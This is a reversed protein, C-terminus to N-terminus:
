GLLFGTQTRTDYPLRPSSEKGQKETKFEHGPKSAFYTVSGRYPPEDEWRWFHATITILESTPDHEFFTSWLVYLLYHAYHGVFAALSQEGYRDVRVSVNLDHLLSLRAVSGIGSADWVLSGKRLRPPVLPLTIDLKRLYPFGSGLPDLNLIRLDDTGWQEVAGIGRISLQRMTVGHKQAIVRWLNDALDIALSRIAIEKLKRLSLIFEIASTTPGAYTQPMIPGNSQSKHQYGFELSELNPVKGTLHRFFENPCSAGFSLRRLKTFDVAVLLLGCHIPDFDYKPVQIDLSEIAPLRDGSSLPLNLPGVDVSDLLSLQPDNHAELVLVRISTSKSLVNKLRRFFSRTPPSSLSKCAISYKLSYLQPSSFLVPDFTKTSVCLRTAPRLTHFADLLRSPMPHDVNWSFSYLGQFKGMLRVLIDSNLCASADDGEFSAVTFTRVHRFLTDNSSLLRDKIRNSFDIQEENDGVTIHKYIQSEAFDKLRWSVLRLRKLYIFRELAFFDLLVFLIDDNLEELGAMGCTELFLLAYTKPLLKFNLGQHATM